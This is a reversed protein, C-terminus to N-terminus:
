SCTGAFDQVGPVQRKAALFLRRLRAPSYGTAAKLRRSLHSQDSFGAAAAVDSIPPGYELLQRCATDLRQRRLFQGVSCGQHRRFARALYIPHVRAVRALDALRPNVSPDSLLREELSALWEPKSSPSRACGRRDVLYRLLVEAQLPADPDGDAFARYCGFILVTLLGDAVIPRDPFLPASRLSDPLGIVFTRAGRPGYRNEHRLGRPRFLVMPWQTRYEVGSFSECGTGALVVSITAQQHCHSALRQNPRRRLESFTLGAASRTRLIDGDRAVYERAIV